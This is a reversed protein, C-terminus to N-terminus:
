YGGLRLNQISALLDSSITTSQGVLIANSQQWSTANQAEWTATFRNLFDTLKGSDQLDEVDLFREIMTAQLDIDMMATEEPINFTTQVVKLLAQDGLINFVDEIDAAKREFYLALRAGENQVGTDEELSQRLFKDVTGQQTASTSTTATGFAEFDFTEAFDKYRTDSLQNAFSKDDHAGEELVKRMFAKAYIMDELGHARMAYNYLRDDELLDDITEVEGIHELYYESEREVEPRAAIRDLSGQLDRTIMNYTVTATM